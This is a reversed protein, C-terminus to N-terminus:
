RYKVMHLVTGGGQVPEYRVEDMYEVILYVGRGGEHLPDVDMAEYRGPDFNRAFENDGFDRITMHLKDEDALATIEIDHGPEGRYAYRVVNTCAEAFVLKVLYAFSGDFGHETIFDELWARARTM